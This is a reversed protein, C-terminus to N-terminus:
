RRGGYQGSGYPGPQGPQTGQGPMPQGPNAPNMPQGYGGMQQMPQGQQVGQPPMAHAQAGHVQAVGMAARAEQMAAAHAAKRRNALYVLGIIVAALLILGIGVGVVPPNSLFAEDGIDTNRFMGNVIGDELGSALPTEDDRIDEVTAPADAAPVADDLIEEGAPEVATAPADAAALAAAVPTIPPATTTTTAEEEPQAVTVDQPTALRTYTFTYVNESADALLEGTLNYAQPAYGEVYRYALMPSEGINGYFSESPYLETGQEDVYRVTYAVNEGLIGYSVVLDLDGTVTLAALLESSTDNDRGSVKWGRVYYKSANDLVVDGQHFSLRTGPKLDSYVLCDTGDSFSGQAGAFLRVTYHYPQQAAFAQTPAFVVFSLGLALLACLVLRVARVASTMRARAASRADRTVCAGNMAANVETM